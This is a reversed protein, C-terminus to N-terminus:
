FVHNISTTLIVKPIVIQEQGALPRPIAYLNLVTNALTQMRLQVQSHFLPEQLLDQRYCYDTFMQSKFKWRLCGGRAVIFPSNTIRATIAVILAADTWLTRM